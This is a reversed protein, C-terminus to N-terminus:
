AVEAMYDDVEDVEDMKEMDDIFDDMADDMMEIEAGQM